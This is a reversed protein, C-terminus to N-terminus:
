CLSIKFCEIHSPKSNMKSNIIVLTRVSKLDTIYKYSMGYMGYLQLSKNERDLVFSWM